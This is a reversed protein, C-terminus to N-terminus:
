GGIDAAHAGFTARIRSTPADVAPPPNCQPFVLGFAAAVSQNWIPNGGCVRTPDDASVTANVGYKSGNGDNNLDVIVSTEDGFSVVRSPAFTSVQGGGGCSAALLGFGLALGALARRAGDSLKATM